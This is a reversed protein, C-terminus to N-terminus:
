VCREIAAQDVTAGGVLVWDSFLRGKSWGIQVGTGGGQRVEGFDALWHCRRTRSGGCCAHVLGTQLGSYFSDSFLTFSAEVGSEDRKKGSGNLTEEEHWNCTKRGEASKSEKVRIPEQGRVSICSSDDAHM